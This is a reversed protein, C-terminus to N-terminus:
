VPVVQVTRTAADEWDFEELLEEAKKPDETEVEITLVYDQGDSLRRGQATVRFTM